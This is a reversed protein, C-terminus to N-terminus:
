ERPPWAYQGYVTYKTGRAQLQFTQSRTETPFFLRKLGEPSLMGATRNLGMLHLVIEIPTVFHGM